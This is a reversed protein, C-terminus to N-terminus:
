KEEKQPPTRNLAGTDPFVPRFRSIQALVRKFLFIRPLHQPDEEDLQPPLDMLCSEIEARAEILKGLFKRLPFLPTEELTKLRDNLASEQPSFTIEQSGVLIDRGSLRGQLKRALNRLLDLEPPEESWSEMTEAIVAPDFGAGATAWASAKGIKDAFAPRRFFAELLFERSPVNKRGPPLDRILDFTMRGDVLLGILRDVLLEKEQPTPAPDELLQYLLVALASVRAHRNRFATERGELFRATEFIADALGSNDASPKQRYASFFPILEPYKRGGRSCRGAMVEFVIEELPSDVDEPAIKSLLHRALLFIDQAEEYLNPRTRAPFGKLDEYLATRDRTREAELLNLLERIKELLVFERIKAEHGSLSKQDSFAVLKPMPEGRSTEFPLGGLTEALVNLYFPFPLLLVDSSLPFVVPSPNELFFSLRELIEHDKRIGENLGCLSQMKYEMAKRRDGPLPLIGANALAQPYEEASNVVTMEGGEGQRVRTKRDVPLRKEPDAIVQDGLLSMVYLPPQPFGVGKKWEDAAWPLLDIIGSLMKPLHEGCFRTKGEKRAFLFGEGDIDKVYLDREEVDLRAAFGKLAATPVKNLDYALSAKPGRIETITGGELDSLDELLFGVRYTSLFVRIKAAKWGSQTLFTDVL